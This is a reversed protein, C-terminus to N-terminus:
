QPMGALIDLMKKFREAQVTTALAKAEEIKGAMIKPVIDGDRTVKFPQWVDAFGQLAAGNKAVQEDVKASAQKIAEVRKEQAAKDSEALLGVLNDRAEMLAAKTADAVPGAWLPMALTVGWVLLATMVRKKM